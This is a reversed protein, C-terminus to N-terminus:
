IEIKYYFTFFDLYKMLLKYLQLAIIKFSSKIVGNLLKNILLFDFKMIVLDQPLFM